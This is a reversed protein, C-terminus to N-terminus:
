NKQKGEQLTVEGDLAPKLFRKVAPIDLRSAPGAEVRGAILADKDHQGFKAAYRALLVQFFKNFM